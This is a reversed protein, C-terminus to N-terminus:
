RSIRFRPCIYERAMIFTRHSLLLHFRNCTSIMSVRKRNEPRVEALIIPFLSHSTRANKGLGLFSYDQYPLLVSGISRM